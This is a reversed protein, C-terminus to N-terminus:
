VLKSLAMNLRAKFVDLSPAGYSRQAAQVLTEDSGDYFM